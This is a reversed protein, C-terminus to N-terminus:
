HFYPKTKAARSITKTLFIFKGNVSRELEDIEDIVKLIKKEFASKNGASVLYDPSLELTHAMRKLVDVSPSIKNLNCRGIIESSWCIEKDLDPQSLKKVKCLINVKNDNNM